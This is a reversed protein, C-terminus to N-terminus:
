LFTAPIRPVAEVVRVTLEEGTPLTVAEEYGSRVELYTCPPFVVEAQKPFVSLFSLDSGIQLDARVKIILPPPAESDDPPTLAYEDVVSRLSSASVFALETGGRAKFQQIDAADGVGRWVETAGRRVAGEAASDAAAATAAKRAEARLREVEAARLKGIAEAVWAVLAPYPHRKTTSCGDLLPTNISHHVSTTYLRLALVHIRKLGAAVAIPHQAFDDLTMATHGEDLISAPMGPPLKREEAPEEKVYQLWDADSYGARDRSEAHVAIIEEVVVREGGARLRALEEESELGLLKYLGVGSEIPRGYRMQRSLFKATRPDHLSPGGPLEAAPKPAAPEDGQHPGGGRVPSAAAPPAELAGIVSQHGSSLSNRRAKFSGGANARFSGGTFSGGTSSGGTVSDEPAAGVVFPPPTVHLGLSLPAHPGETDAASISALSISATCLECTLRHKTTVDQLPWRQQRVSREVDDRITKREADTRKKDLEANKEAHAALRRRLEAQQKDVCGPCCLQGECVIGPFDELIKGVLENVRLLLAWVDRRAARPARVEVHQEHTAHAGDAGGSEVATRMELLLTSGPISTHLLAGGKWFGCYRGLGNCAAVLRECVGPPAFRGLRYGLGVQEYAADDLAATWQGYVDDACAAPLRMPMVWRRGHRAHEALFLVGSTALMLVVDGYDNSDLGLPQWMPTLLEERLEGTKTFLECAPLLLAARRAQTEADGPLAGLTQQFRQRTLRHDVLPKLLRTIYDPQLYIIGSSAFIEGQNVLLQLADRLVQVGGGGDKAGRPAREELAPLVLHLWLYEAEGVAIYPRAGGAFGGGAVGASPNNTPLLEASDSTPVANRAAAVPDRGDRLARLYSMAVLWSRPITQGVSPLLPPKGLVLEELRARLALLSADGGAVASVCCVKEQVQLPKFGESVLQAAQHRHLADRLWNAQALAAQEFAEAPPPKAPPAALLRDCHTIVPQVVAEPAGATLYDMWRGVLDGYARDLDATPMAPVLLLYLSGSVIYPQLGAAYQPQGALDWMSVLVQESASGKDAAHRELLLSYIDLQITREDAEAPTATGARLGRQLSTKGAEGHGLLVLRAANSVAEGARALEQFYRRIAVIGQKATSLPPRQLPNNKVEIKELNTLDCISLILQSLQNESLDMHKLAHMQGITTPLFTLQNGKLDLSELSELQGITAQLERLRNGHAALRKLLRLRWLDEPLAVLKNNSLSLTRLNLLNGVTGSGLETLENRDFALRELASLGGISGMLEALQAAQAEAKKTGSMMPAVNSTLDISLVRAANLSSVIMKLGEPGLENSALSLETMTANDRVLAGIFLASVLTLRQHSLDIAVGRDAQAHARTAVREATGKLAVVPLEGGELTLRRLTASQRVATALQQLGRMEAEGSYHALSVMPNRSLDIATLLQNAALAQAISGAAEKEVQCGALVLQTLSTNFKVVGSLLRIAGTELPQDRLDLVSLGQEVDFAYSRISGLRCQCGENLLLNGLVWLGQDDIPNDRVDLATLSRNLQIARTLVVGSIANNSLDLSTISCADSRLVEVMLPGIASDTLANSGLKYSTIMACLGSQLTEFLKTGGRDGLGIGTLDLTSLTSQAARQLHELIAGGETGAGPNVKLERVSTNAGLIAGIMACAVRSVPAKSRKGDVVVEGRESIDVYELKKAGNLQQVPLTSVTTDSGKTPHELKLNLLTSNYQLAEALPEIHENNLSKLELTTIIPNARLLGAMLTFSRISRVQEKDRLDCRYTRSMSEYMNFIDCFGVHGAKNALLARGVEERENDGMEGKGAAVNLTTLVTNKKLCGALMIADSQLTSNWM